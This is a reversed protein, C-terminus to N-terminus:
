ADRQARSSLWAATGVSVIV